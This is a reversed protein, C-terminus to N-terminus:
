LLFCSYQPTKQDVDSTERYQEGEKYYTQPLNKGGARKQGQSQEEEM